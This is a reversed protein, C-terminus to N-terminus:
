TSVPPLLAKLCFVSGGAKEFEFTDVLVPTLAENELIRRLAPPLHSVIFHGGVAVGNCAFQLADDRGIEHRRKWGRRLADLSEAALAGPYVMAADESLPAFCTDLHYFVPDVLRLPEVDLGEGSVARAFRTVGESSSRFGHGAWVVNRKPHQLLDGHGELFEGELGADVIAFGNRAFWEVFYPVERRRSAYRMRSPVVFRPHLAGAGVFVQNAAFVMDELDEVPEVVHPTVGLSAFAERLSTWQRGAAERDVVADVHMFPNKVDRVTFFTPPCMLVGTVSGSGGENKEVIADPNRM